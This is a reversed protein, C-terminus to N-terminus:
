AEGVAGVCRLMFFFVKRRLELPQKPDHVIAALEEAVMDWNIAHSVPKM